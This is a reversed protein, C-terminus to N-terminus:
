HLRCVEENIGMESLSQLKLRRTELVNLAAERGTEEGWIQTAM